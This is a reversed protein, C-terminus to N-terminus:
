TALASSARMVKKVLRNKKWRNESAGTVGAPCWRPTRLTSTGTIPQRMM